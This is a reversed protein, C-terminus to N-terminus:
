KSRRRRRIRLLCCPNRSYHLKMLMEVRSTFINQSKGIWFNTDPTKTASSRRLCDFIWTKIREIANQTRRSPRRVCSVLVCDHLVKWNASDSSNEARCPKNDFTNVLHVSKRSTKQCASSHTRQVFLRCKEAEATHAIFLRRNSWSHSTEM